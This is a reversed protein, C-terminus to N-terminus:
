KRMQVDDLNHVDLHKIIHNIIVLKMNKNASRYNRSNFDYPKGYCPDEFRHFENTDPHRLTYPTPFRPIFHWHTHTGEADALNMLCAVNVLQVQADKFAARLGNELIKELKSFEHWEEQTWESLSPVHRKTTVFLRPVRMDREDM